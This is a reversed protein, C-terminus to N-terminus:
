WRNIRSQRWRNEATFAILLSKRSLLEQRSLGSNSESRGNSEHIHRILITSIHHDKPLLMPNKADDCIPALLLRGGVRMVGDKIMLKLTILPSSSQVKIGKELSMMEAPFSRRQVVAVIRKKAKELDEISLRNQAEEPQVRNKLLKIRDVFKLVWSVRRLAEIWCSSRSLLQDVASSAELNIHYLEKKIELHDDAQVEFKDKPWEEDPKTM